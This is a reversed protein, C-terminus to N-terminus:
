TNTIRELHDKNLKPSDQVGPFFHWVCCPLTYRWSTLPSGTSPGLGLRPRNCLSPDACSFAPAKGKLLGIRVPRESKRRGLRLSREWKSMLCITDYENPQIPSTLFPLMFLLLLYPRLCPAQCLLTDRGAGCSCAWQPEWLVAGRAPLSVLREAADIDDRMDLCVLSRFITWGVQVMHDATQSQPSQSACSQSPFALVQVLPVGKLATVAQRGSGWEPLGKGPRGKLTGSERTQGDVRKFHGGFPKTRLPKQAWREPFFTQMSFNLNFNPSELHVCFWICISLSWICITSKLPRKQCVSSSRLFGLPQCTKWLLRALFLKVAHLCKGNAPALKRRKLNM